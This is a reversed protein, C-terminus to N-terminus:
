LVKVVEDLPKKKTHMPAPKAKEDAYGIDMLLVVEENEPLAFAKKVASPTIMNVWCTALGEELAAYMVHTAVISCDEAGSNRNEEQPYKFAEDKNYAFVLVTSAGYTCPTLEKAKALAAESKLVYVRPSQMNKATPAKEAVELVRRLKEDEVPKASFKRVTFRADAMEAFTM